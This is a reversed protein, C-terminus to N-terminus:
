PFGNETTQFRADQIGGAANRWEEFHVLITQPGWCLLKCRKGLDGLQILPGVELSLPFPLSPLPLSLSQIRVVNSVSRRWQGNATATTATYLCYVRRQTSLSKM